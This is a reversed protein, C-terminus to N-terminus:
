HLGRDNVQQSELHSGHRSQAELRRQDAVQEAGELEEGVREVTELRRSWEAHDHAIDDLRAEPVVIADGEPLVSTDLSALARGEHETLPRTLRIRVPYRDRDVDGPSVALERVALPASPRHRSMRNM